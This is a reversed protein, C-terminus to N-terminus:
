YKDRHWKERSNLCAIGHEYPQETFRSIMNYAKHKNITVTHLSHMSTTLAKHPEAGM